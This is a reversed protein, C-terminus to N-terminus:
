CIAIVQGMAGGNHLSNRIRAPQVVARLVVMRQTDITIPSSLTQLKAGEPVPFRQYQFTDRDNAIFVQRYLSITIYQEKRQDQRNCRHSQTLLNM